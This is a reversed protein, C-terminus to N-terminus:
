EKYPDEERILAELRREIDKRKMAAQRQPNSLPLSTDLTMSYMWAHPSEYRKLDAGGPPQVGASMALSAYENLNRSLGLFTLMLQMVAFKKADSNTGFRPQEEGEGFSPAGAYKRHVDNRYNFMDSFVEYVGAGMSKTLYVWQAPVRPPRTGEKVKLTEILTALAPNISLSSLLDLIQNQEEGKMASFMLTSINIATEFIEVAPNAPGFRAYDMNDIRGKFMTYFRKKGEDTSYFWTEQKQQQRMSLRTTTIVAGAGEGKVTARYLSNITESMMQRRFAWFLLVKGAYKKEFQSMAGYDLMSRQAIQAAEEVTKGEKLASIFFARRSVNDTGDAFLQWVNKKWPALLNAINGVGSIKQGKMSLRVADLAETAIAESFEVDGRTFGINTRALTRKLEGVTWQRGLDSTFLVDSDKRVGLSFTDIFTQGIGSLGISTPIEKAALATRRFGLTISSIVLATLINQGHYRLNPFPFGGLLASTQNRRATTLISGAVSVVWPVFDKDYARLKDLTASLRTTNGLKFLEGMETAEGSTLTMMRSTDKRFVPAVYGRHNTNVLDDSFALGNAKYAQQIHFLSDNVATIVPADFMTLPRSTPGFYMRAIRRGFDSRIQSQTSEELKTFAPQSTMYEELKRGIDQLPLDAKERMKQVISNLDPSTNKEDVIKSNIMGILEKRLGSTTKQVAEVHLDALKRPLSQQKSLDNLKKSAEVYAPDAKLATNILKLTDKSLSKWDLGPTLGLGIFIRQRIQDVENQAQLYSEQIKKFTPTKIKKAFSDYLREYSKVLETIDLQAYMSNPTPAFDVVYQPNTDVFEDFLKSFRNGKRYGVIWDMMAPLYVKSGRILTKLGKGRLVPFDRDIRGIITQFNEVSFDFINTARSLTVPGTSVDQIRLLGGLTINHLNGKIHTKVATGGYYASLIREWADLKDGFLKFDLIVRRRIQNEIEPSIVGDKAAQKLMPEVIREIQDIQRPELILRAYKEWSGGMSAAVYNDTNQVLKVQTEEWTQMAIKDFGESPNKPNQKTAEKLDDMFRPMISALEDNVRRQFAFFEPPVDVDEFTKLFKKPTIGLWPIKDSAVVRVASVMDTATLTLHSKQGKALQIAGYALDDPIAARQMQEGGYRLDFADLHKKAFHGKLHKQVFALEDSSIEGKLINELATQFSESRRITAAGVEQVIINAIESTLPKPITHLGSKADMKIDKMLRIIDSEWRLFKETAAADKAERGAALSKRPAVVSGSIVTLNDPLMNLLSTKANETVAKTTAEAIDDIQAAGLEPFNALDFAKKKEKAVRSLSRAIAPKNGQEFAKALRVRFLNDQIQMGLRGAGRTVKKGKVMALAMEAGDEAQNVLRGMAPNVQGALDIAERPNELVAKYHNLLEEGTTDDSHNLLRRATSSLPRSKIFDDTLFGAKALEDFLVVDSVHRGVNEAAAAKLSSGDLHSQWREPSSWPASDAIKRLEKVSSGTAATEMIEDVVRETQKYKAYRIPNSASAVAEGVKTAGLGAAKRGAYTAAQAARRPAAIIGTAPMYFEAALGAWWPLDEGLMNWVFKAVGFQPSAGAAASLGLPENLSSEQYAETGETIMPTSEFLQPMGQLNAINVVVQDAFNGSDALRYTDTEETDLLPQVTAAAVAPFTGLARLGTGLASEVVQGTEYSPTMLVGAAKQLAKDEFSADESLGEELYAAMPAFDDGEAIIQPFFSEWLLEGTTGKRYTRLEPDYVIGKEVDRILSATSPGIGGAPSRGYETTAKELAIPEVSEMAQRAAEPATEGELRKHLARDSTLQVSAAYPDSTPMYPYLNSPPKEGPQPASGGDMADLYQAASIEGNLYKQFIEETTPEAM